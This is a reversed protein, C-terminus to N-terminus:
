KMNKSKFQVHGEIKLLRWLQRRCTESEGREDLVALVLNPNKSQKLVAAETDHRNKVNPLDRRLEEVLDIIKAAKQKTLVTQM